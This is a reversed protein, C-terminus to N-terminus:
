FASATILGSILKWFLLKTTKGVKNFRSSAVFGIKTPMVTACSINWAALVVGAQEICAAQQSPIM